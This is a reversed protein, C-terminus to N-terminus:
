TSNQLCWKLGNELDDLAEQSKLPSGEKEKVNKYTTDKLLNALEIGVEECALVLAKYSESDPKLFCAIRLYCKKHATLYGILRESIIEIYRNKIADTELRENWDYSEFPYRAEFERPIVGANSIMVEHFKNRGVRKLREIFGKHTSSTSYPKGFSCPLFLLVRDKPPEYWRILYDFWVEYHPHTLYWEGVGELDDRASEDFSPVFRFTEEDSEVRPDKVWEKVADKFEDKSLFSWRGEMWLKAVPARYHPLLNILVITDAHGLAYEVSDDLSKQIDDTYPTNVILYARVKVGSDHITKAAAEFDDTTFGKNLKKLLEDYSSELGIAVSLELGDFEALKESTIFEPRSEITVQKVGADKCRRIFEERSQAPIQADDLFSGSGFVKVQTEGKLEQFFMDYRRSIEKPDAPAGSIRGYGCFVCKGHACRGFNLILVAM